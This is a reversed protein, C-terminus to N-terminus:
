RIEEMAIRCEELFTNHACVLFNLLLTTCKGVGSAMPILYELPTKSTFSALQEPIQDATLFCVTTGFHEVLDFNEGRPPLLDKCLSWAKNLSQLMRKM